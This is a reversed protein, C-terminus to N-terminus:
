KKAMKLYGKVKSSNGQFPNRPTAEEPNTEKGHIIIPHAKDLNDGREV